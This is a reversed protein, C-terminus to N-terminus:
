QLEEFMMEVMDANACQDSNLSESTGWKLLTPIGKLKTKEHTRFICQPDKWTPRDGVVCYIFVNGEPIKPVCKEIIPEAKVCDPCWSAGTAPDEKGTFLVIINSATKEEEAIIKELEAM